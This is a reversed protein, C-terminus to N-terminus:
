AMWASNSCYASHISFSPLHRPQCVEGTLPLFHHNLRFLWDIRDKEEVFLTGAPAAGFRPAFPAPRIGDLKQRVGYGAQTKDCGSLDRGATTLVLRQVGAM